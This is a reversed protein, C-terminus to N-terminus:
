ASRGGIAERRSTGFDWVPYSHLGRRGAALGGGTLRLEYGQAATVVPDPQAPAATGTGALAIAAAIIIRKM